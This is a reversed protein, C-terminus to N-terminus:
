PSVSLCSRRVNRSVPRVNPSVSALDDLASARNTLHERGAATARM